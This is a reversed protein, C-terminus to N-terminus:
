APSIKYALRIRDSSRGFCPYRPDYICVLQLIADFVEDGCDHHDGYGAVSYTWFGHDLRYYYMEIQIDFTYIDLEV